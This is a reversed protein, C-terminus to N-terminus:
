YWFQVTIIMSSIYITLYFNLHHLGYRKVGRRLFSPKVLTQLVTRQIQEVM